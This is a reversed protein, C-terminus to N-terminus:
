CCEGLSTLKKAAGHPDPRKVATLVALQNLLAAM